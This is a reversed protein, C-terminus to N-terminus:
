TWLGRYYKGFLNLGNQIRENVANAGVSDFGDKFFENEWETDVVHEFAFIMEDLVYEWRKHFNADLDGDETEVSRLAEPVDMDNVIPAGHKCAQIQKLMPLIILGLTHDASYTDWKDIKIKITRKRKSEVWLFGKQLWSEKKEGGALWKGLAMVADSNEDKWFLVKEALQYCGFSNIYNGIKIKM